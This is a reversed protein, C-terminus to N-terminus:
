LVTIRVRGHGGDAGRYNDCSGGGGSGFQGSCGLMLSGCANGGVGPGPCLGLQEYTRGYNGAAANWSHVWTPVIPCSGGQGGAAWGFPGAQGNTVPTNRVCNGAAADMRGGVGGIAILGGAPMGDGIVRSAEGDLGGRENDISIGGRGVVISYVAGPIAPVELMSGAGAGGGSGTHRHGGGGAGGAGAIEFRLRKNPPIVAPVRYEYTGPTTFDAGSLTPEAPPPQTVAPPAAAVYVQRPSPNRTSASLRTCVLGQGSLSLATQGAPCEGLSATRQCQPGNHDFGTLVSGGPCALVSAEDRARYCSEIVREGAPTVLTIPFQRERLVQVQPTLGAVELQLSVIAAHFEKTTDSSLGMSQLRTVTLNRVTLHRGIKSGAQILQPDSLQLSLNSVGRVLAPLEKDILLGACRGENALRVQLDSYLMEAEVASQHSHEGRVASGFFDAGLYTVTGLIAAAVLLETVGFGRTSKFNLHAASSKM